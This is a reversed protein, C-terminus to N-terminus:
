WILIAWDKIDKAIEAHLVKLKENSRPHTQLFKKLSAGITQLFQQNNM